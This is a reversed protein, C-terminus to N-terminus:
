GAKPAAGGAAQAQQRAPPPPAAGDTRFRAKMRGVWGAFVDTDSMAAALGAGPAATLGTLAVKLQAPNPATDTLRMYHDRLRALSADDNALSYGVGARLLMAAEPASLPENRKWRDGLRQEATRSAGAWDRSRWACLARVELADPSTDPGIVELAHDFRGLDVLARAELLRRQSNLATPLLTSRSGNIAGLADEPKRDMLYVLALDTAVQAKAAGDLRNDVQYKLLDAAQGLLDVDVLRRVLRRVMLDGEAGIPTYAKFDYFLALAQVPELGDARGALFLDRFAQALDARIASAAPLDPMRSGASRWAELAERYRGQRLNVQGLERVVELETADGRWRYRISDLTVIAEDIKIHGAALKLDTAKLLAPAAVAGYRDSALGEYLALAEPTRGEQEAIRARVLSQEARDEPTAADGGASLFSRAAGTDGQSAAAGAAAIAFRARWAPAVQDLTIRGTAFQSKAAAFDGERAAAYSRWLAAAPDAVIPPASFDAQADKWRRAMIRSAGRLGRFEGLGTVAPDTKALTDLVGIAEEGLESGVLFRALGLRAEMPAGKGHSGEEAAAALLADYRALFGHEGTKSWAAFDILGPLTSPKPLDLAEAVHAHQPSGGGPAGATAPSLVLGKPRVIRVRDGETSVTLDDAVPQLALGHASGLMRADVFSRPAGQAPQAGATVVALRDGVQPDSLWFVGSAGPLRAILAPSGDEDRAVAVAPPPPPPAGGLTLVWTNGDAVLSLASSEPGTIRIATFDAGPVAEFRKAQPLGRPAGSLDLGAKADFVVWVGDGRRFAAAGVAGRWPFRLTLVGAKFAAAMRVGGPPAPDPRPAPPQNKAVATAAAASRLNIFRAGDAAGLTVVAGDAPVLRVEVGGNVAAVTASKLFPPPDVHLRALNPGAGPFRVIVAAGDRRVDREGHLVLQSFGGGVGVSIESAQPAAAFALPAAAGNLALALSLAVTLGSRAPASISSRRTVWRGQGM